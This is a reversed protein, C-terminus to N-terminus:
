SAMVALVWGDGVTTLSGAAGVISAAIDDLEASDADHIVSLEVQGGDAGADVRVTDAGAGIAASVLESVAVRAAEVGTEDVGLTRLSAATFARAISVEHPRSGISLSARETM